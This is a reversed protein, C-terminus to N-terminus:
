YLDGLRGRRALQHQAHDFAAVFAAEDDDGNAELSKLSKSFLITMATNLTLRFFRPQLDLADSSFAKIV